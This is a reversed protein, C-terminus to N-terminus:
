YFAHATMACANKTAPSQLKACISARWKYPRIGYGGTIIRTKNQASQHVLNSIRGHRHADIKAGISARM